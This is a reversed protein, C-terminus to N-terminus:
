PPPAPPPNETGGGKDGAWRVAAVGIAVAAATAASAAVITRRRAFRREQVSAIADPQLSLPADGSWESRHGDMSHITRPLLVITGDDDLKRLRGEIRVARPGLLPVLAASGVPTLEVRVEADPAVAARGAEVSAYGYCATSGLVGVVVGILWSAPLIPRDEGCRGGRSTLVLGPQQRM